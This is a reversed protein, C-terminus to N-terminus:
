SFDSYSFGKLCSKSFNSTKALGTLKYLLHGVLRTTEPAGDRSILDSTTATVCSTITASSDSWLTESLTSISQVHHCVSATLGALLMVM